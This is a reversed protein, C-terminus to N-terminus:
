IILQRIQQDTKIELPILTLESMCFLYQKLGWALLISSYYSKCVAYQGRPGYLSGCCIYRSM